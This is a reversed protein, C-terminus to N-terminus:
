PEDVMRRREVPGAEVGVAIRVVRVVRPPEPQVAPGRELCQARVPAREVHQM